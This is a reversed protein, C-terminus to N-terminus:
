EEKPEPFERLADALLWGQEVLSAIAEERSIREADVWQHLRTPTRAKLQDDRVKEAEKAAKTRLAAQRQLRQEAIKAQREVEKAQARLLRDRDKSSRALHGLLCSQVIRNADDDSWGVAVLRRKFEVDNIMGYGRWQCLQTAVAEKGVVRRQLQWLSIHEDIRERLIGLIALEGRAEAENIRGTIYGKRIISLANKVRALRHTTACNSLQLDAEERDMGERIMFGIAADRELAGSAFSQCVLTVFRKRAPTLTKKVADQATWRALTIADERTYGFDQNRETLEQEAAGTPEYGGDPRRRFGAEGKPEGWIGSKYIRRIDIRAIPRYSILTLWDRFAVPYDHIKLVTKVDDVKFPKFDIGLGKFLHARNPRLRHLAEYSQTPSMVEWHARWYARAWSIKEGPPAVGYLGSPFDGFGLRSMWYEFPKPFEEDYGFRKVVDPQWVERLAFRVLDSQGPLQYRLNMMQQREFPNSYGQSHLLSEAYVPSLHERNLMEILEAPTPMSRSNEVLPSWITDFSSLFRRSGSTIQEGEMRIWAGQTRMAKQFLKESIAGAHYLAILQGIEPLKNAMFINSVQDINRGVPGLGSLFGAAQSGLSLLQGAAAVTM